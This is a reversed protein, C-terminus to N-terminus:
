KTISLHLYREVMLRRLDKPLGCERLVFLAMMLVPRIYQEVPIHDPIEDIRNHPWYFHLILCKVIDKPGYFYADRIPRHEYISPDVRPDRLLRRVVKIHGQRSAWRIPRNEYWTPDCAPGDLAALVADPDNAVIHETLSWQYRKM